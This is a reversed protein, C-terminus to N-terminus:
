LTFDPPFAVISPQHAQLIFVSKELSNERFVSCIGGSTKSVEVKNQLDVYRNLPLNATLLLAFFHVSNPVDDVFSQISFRKIPVKTKSITDKPM